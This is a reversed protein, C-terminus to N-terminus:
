FINEFLLKCFYRVTNDEIRMWDLNKWIEIGKKKGINSM